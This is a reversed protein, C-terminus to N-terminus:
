AFITVIYWIGAATWWGLLVLVVTIAIEVALRAVSSWEIVRWFLVLVITGM